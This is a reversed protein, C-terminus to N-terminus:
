HVKGLKSTNWVVQLLLAVYLWPIGLAEIMGFIMGAAVKTVFLSSSFFVFLVYWRRRLGEGASNVGGELVRETVRYSDAILSLPGLCGKCQRKQM